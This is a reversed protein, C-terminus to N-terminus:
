NTFNNKTRGQWREVESQWSGEIVQETERGGRKKGKYDVRIGEQM